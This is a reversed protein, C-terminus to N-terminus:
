GQQSERESEDREGPCFGRESSCRERNVADDVLGVSTGAVTHTPGVRSRARQAGRDLFGVRRGARRDVDRGADVLELEGGDVVVERLGTVEIDRGGHRDDAFASRFRDDVAAEGGVGCGLFLRAEIAKELDM